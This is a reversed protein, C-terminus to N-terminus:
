IDGGQDKLVKEISIKGKKYKTVLDSIKYGYNALLTEMESYLEKDGNYLGCLAYLNCNSVTYNGSSFLAKMEELALTGEGKLLYAIALTHKYTTDSADAVAKAEECIEIMKDADHKEAFRYLNAKSIYATTDQKNIQTLKDFGYNVAEEDGLRAAIACYNSLYVWEQGAGISDIYKLQEFQENLDRESISMIIYKYYEIFVENYKETVESTGEEKPKAQKLADLEAMVKDYDFDEGAFAKETVKSVAEYTETLVTADTIISAYKKNTPKKLDDESYYTQILQAANTHYGLKEYGETIEDIARKSVGNGVKGGNFYAYYSQLASMIYGSQYNSSADSLGIADNLYPYSVTFSAFLLGISLLTMLVGSARLPAKKMKNRCDECYPYDEDIEKFRIKEGCRQCLDEAPIEIIEEDEVVLDVNELEQILMEGDEAEENGTVAKDLEQQFMDRINELEERLEAAENTNEQDNIVTEETENVPVEESEASIGEKKLEDM